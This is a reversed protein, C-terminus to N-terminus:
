LVGVCAYLLIGKKLLGYLRVDRGDFSAGYRGHTPHVQCHRSRTAKGPPIIAVHTNVPTCHQTVEPSLILPCM